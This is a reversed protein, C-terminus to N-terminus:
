IKLKLPNVMPSAELYCRSTVLSIGKKIAQQLMSPSLTQAAHGRELKQAKRRQNFLKDQLRVDKLM